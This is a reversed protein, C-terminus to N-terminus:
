KIRGRGARRAAACSGPRGSQVGAYPLGEHGCRNGRLGCGALYKSAASPGFDDPRLSFRLGRNM